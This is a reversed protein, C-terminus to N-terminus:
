IDKPTTLCWQGELFLTTSTMEAFVSYMRHGWVRLRPACADHASTCFVFAPLTCQLGMPLPQKTRSSPKSESQLCIISTPTPAHPLSLEDSLMMGVGGTVSAHGVKPSCVTKMPLKSFASATTLVARNRTAPARLGNQLGGLWGLCRILFGGLLVCLVQTTMAKASISPEALRHPQKLIVCCFPTRLDRWCGVHFGTAMPVPIILVLLYSRMSSSAPRLFLLAPLM